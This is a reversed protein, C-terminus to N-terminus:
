ASAASAIAILSFTGLIVSALKYAHRKIGQPLLGGLTVWGLGAATSLAAYTGIWALAAVGTGPPILITGVLMAKPNVITTLLVRRFAADSVAPDPEFPMRWLRYSSYILWAAAALRVIALTVHSGRLMEAFAVFFSLAIVYGIAEALPLIAARRFGLTAGCAALVTNTPGPTLLVLISAAIFSLTVM